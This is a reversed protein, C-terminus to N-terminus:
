KNRLLILCFVSLLITIPTFIITELSSESLLNGLTNLLFLSFMIWLSVTIVKPSFGKKFIQIKMLLIILFIFNVFLSVTEMKYMDSATKMKGGWVMKFDIMELLVLVHFFISFSFVVIMGLEAIRTLKRNKM